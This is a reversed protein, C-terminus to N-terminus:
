SSSFLCAHISSFGFHSSFVSGFLFWLLVRFSYCSSNNEAVRILCQLQSASTFWFLFPFFFTVLLSLFVSIQLLSLCYLVDRARIIIFLVFFWCFAISSDLFRWIPRDCAARYIQRHLIYYMIKQETLFYSFFCVNQDEEGLYILQDIIMGLIDNELSSFFAFPSSKLCHWEEATTVYM